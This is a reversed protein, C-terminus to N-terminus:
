NTTHLRSKPAFTFYKFTTRASKQRVHIYIFISSRITTFDGTLAPFLFAFILSSNNDTYPLAVILQAANKSRIPLKRSPLRMIRIQRHISLCM